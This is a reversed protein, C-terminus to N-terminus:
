IVQKKDFYRALIIGLFIIFLGIFSFVSPIEGLIIYAAPLSFLPSVYSLFSVESVELKAQAKTFLIYAVVSSFIAMYLIVSLSFLSISMIKENYERFNMLYFPILTLFVGYFSFVTFEIESYKKKHLKINIKKMLSILKISNTGFLFKSYVVWFTGTLITSSILLNGLFRNKAVVEAPSILPEVIVFAAGLFAIIIGIEKYINIKERYFFHGAAITVLPSILGIIIADTSTTLDLGVFFVILTIQGTLTFLVINFWDYNSYKKKFILVWLYPACLVAVILFRAFLFFYPDMDGLAYKVLPTALSWIITAIFLYTYSIIKM